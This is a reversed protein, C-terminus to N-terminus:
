ALRWYQGEPLEDFDTVKSFVSRRQLGNLFKMFVNGMVYNGRWRLRSKGDVKAVKAVRAEEYM